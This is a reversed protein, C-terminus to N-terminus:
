IRTTTSKEVYTPRGKSILIIIIMSLSNFISWINNAFVTGLLDGNIVYTVFWSTQAVVLFAASLMSLLLIKRSQKRRELVLKGGCILIAYIALVIPLGELFYKLYMM